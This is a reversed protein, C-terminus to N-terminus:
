NDNSKKLEGVVAIALWVLAETEMHENASADFLITASPQVEDDGGWVLVTVPVRPLAPITIGFEGKEIKEGGLAYGAELLADPQEGFFETLPKLVRNNFAYYYENGGWLERFSILKNALPRNRAHTMYHLMIGIKFLNYFPEGNLTEVLQDQPKITFDENIFRLQYTDSTEGLICQTKKIVEDIPQKALEAWATAVAKKLGYIETDPSETKNKTSTM